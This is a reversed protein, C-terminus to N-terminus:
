GLSAASTNSAADTARATLTHAGQALSGTTISWNGSSDTTTTGVVSTGDTDYLKITSNAEATGTYTGAAINTINDTAFSGSDKSSALDPTGPQSPPTTDVPEEPEPPVPIVDPDFLSITYGVTAIDKTVPLLVAQLAPVDLNSLGKDVSYYYAVATKNNLIAQADRYDPSTTEHLARLAEYIIEGKSMGANFRVTVFNFAVSDDQLGLPTLFWSAFQDSSQTAPALAVFLPNHSLAGALLALSNGYAEYADIVSNLYAAGPPANFMGVILKVLYTREDTTIAM